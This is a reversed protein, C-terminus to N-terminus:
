PIVTESVGALRGSSAVVRARLAGHFSGTPVRIELGEPPLDLLASSWAFPQAIPRESLIQISAARGFACASSGLGSGYGLCCTAGCTAAERAQDLDCPSGIECPHCRSVEGLGDRYWVTAAVPRHLFAELRKTEPLDLSATATDVVSV